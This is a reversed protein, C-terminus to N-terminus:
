TFAHTPLIGCVRSSGTDSAKAPLQQSTCQCCGLRKGTVHFNNSMYFSILDPWAGPAFWTEPIPGELATGQLNLYRLAPMAGPLDAPLAGGTFDGVGADVCADAQEPAHDPAVLVHLWVARARSLAAGPGAVSSVSLTTVAPLFPWLDPDFQEAFANAPCDM